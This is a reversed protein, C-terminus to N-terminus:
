YTEDRHRCHGSSCCPDAVQVNALSRMAVFAKDHVADAPQRIGVYKDTLGAVADRRGAGVM